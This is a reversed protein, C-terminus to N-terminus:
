ISVGITKTILRGCSLLKVKGNVCETAHEYIIPIIVDGKRNIYGYKGDKEVVAVGERFRYLRDHESRILIEGHRDIYGISGDTEVAALGESFDGAFDFKFDIITENQENIYGYKGNLKVCILRESLTSADEYKPECVTLGFANLFGYKGDKCVTFLGESFRLKRDYIPPIVIGEYIMGYQQRGNKFSIITGDDASKRANVVEGTIKDVMLIGEDYSYCSYRDFILKLTTAIKIISDMQVMPVFDINYNKGEDRMLMPLDDLVLENIESNLVTIIKDKTKLIYDYKNNLYYGYNGDFVIIGFKDKHTVVYDSGCKFIEAGTGTIYSKTLERLTDSIQLMGLSIPQLKPMAIDFTYKEYIPRYMENIDLGTISSFLVLSEISSPSKGNLWNFYVSKVNKMLEAATARGGHEDIYKEARDLLTLGDTSIRRHAVRSYCENVISDDKVFKDGSEDIKARIRPLYLSIVATDKDLGKFDFSLSFDLCKKKFDYETFVLDTFECSFISALLLNKEYTKPLQSIYLNRWDNVAHTADKIDAYLNRNTYGNLRLSEFYNYFIEAVFVDAMVGHSQMDFIKNLVTKTKRINLENM